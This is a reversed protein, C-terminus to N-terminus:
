ELVDVEVECLMATPSRDLRVNDWWLRIAEAGRATIEEPSIGTVLIAPLEAVYASYGESDGEIMLTYKRTM